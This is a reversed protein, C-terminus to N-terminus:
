SNEIAVSRRTAEPLKPLTVKLVGNQLRARIGEPDVTTPLAFSREFSGHYREMRVWGARKEEHEEKRDGKITLTGDEVELHVDKQDMGPIDAELVISEDTEFINVPPKWVAPPSGKLLRPGTGGFADSFLRNVREHLETLERIPERLILSV